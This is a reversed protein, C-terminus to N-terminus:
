GAFWGVVDKVAGSGVFGGVVGGVINGMGPVESGGIFGAEAGALMGGVLSGAAEGAAGGVAAGAIDAGADVSATGVGKEGSVVDSAEIGITLLSGLYPMSKLFPAGYKIYNDADEVLSAPNKSIVDRVSQPVMKIWGELEAAKQANIQALQDSERGMQELWGASEPTLSALRGEGLEQFTIAAKKFEQSAGKPKEVNENTGKIGDLM